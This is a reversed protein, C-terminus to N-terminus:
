PRGIGGSTRWSHLTAKALPTTPEPLPRQRCTNSHTHENKQMAGLLRMALECTAAPKPPSLAAAAAAISFVAMMWDCVRRMRFVIIKPQM